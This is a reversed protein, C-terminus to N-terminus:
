AIAEITIAFADSAGAITDPGTDIAGLPIIGPAPITSGRDAYFLAIEHEPPWYALQGIEYGFEHDGGDDLARPLPGVKERGFLDRMQVTIPLLSAFDRATVNDALTATLQRGDITLRAKM